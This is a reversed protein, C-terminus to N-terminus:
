KKEADKGADELMQRFGPIPFILGLLAATYISYELVKHPMGWIAHITAVMVMVIASYIAACFVRPMVLRFVWPWLLIFLKPLALVYSTLARGWTLRGFDAHPIAM